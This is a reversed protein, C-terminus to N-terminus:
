EMIEKMHQKFYIVAENLLNDYYAKIAKSSNNFCDPCVKDVGMPWNGGYTLLVGGNEKGCLDCKAM